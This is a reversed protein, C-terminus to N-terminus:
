LRSHHTINRMWNPHANCDMDWCSYSLNLSGEVEDWIMNMIMTWIDLDFGEGVGDHMPSLVGNVVEHKSKKM